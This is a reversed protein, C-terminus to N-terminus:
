ALLRQLVTAGYDGNMHSFDDQRHKRKLTFVMSDRSFHAQTFEDGVTEEPQHLITSDLKAAAEDLAKRFVSNASRRIRADSWIPRWRDTEALGPAPIPEPIFGVSTGIMRAIRFGPTSALFGHASALLCSESIPTTDDSIMQFPRHTRYVESFRVVGIGAGAIIVRDYESIRIESKGGSTIRFFNALDENVPAIVGDGFAVERLLHRPAAFFTLTVGPFDGAISKWGQRLAAAHSNGVICIQTM